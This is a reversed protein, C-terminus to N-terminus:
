APSQQQQPVVPAMGGGGDGGSAGGLGKEGDAPRPVTPVASSARARWPASGARGSPSQQQQQQQQQQQVAPVKRGGGGGGSADGQGKEGDAPRPVASSARARWPASGIRGSPSQQQQQQQQHENMCLAAIQAKVASVLEAATPRRRPDASWCAEALSRHVACVHM